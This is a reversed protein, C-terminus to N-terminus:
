DDFEAIIEDYEEIREKLEQNFEEELMEEEKLINYYYECRGRNGCQDEWMCGKCSNKIM